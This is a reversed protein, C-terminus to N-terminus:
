ILGKHNEIFSFPVAPKVLKNVKNAKLSWIKSTKNHRFEKSITSSEHNFPHSLILQSTVM